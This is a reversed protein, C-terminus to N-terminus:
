GAPEGACALELAEVASLENLVIGHEDQLEVVLRGESSGLRFHVHQGERELRDYADAAGAVAGELQGPLRQVVPTSVWPLEFRM